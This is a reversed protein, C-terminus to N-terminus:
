TQTRHRVTGSDLVAPPPTQQQGNGAARRRPIGKVKRYRFPTMAAFFDTRPGDFVGFAFVAFLAATAFRLVLAVAAFPASRAGGAFAFFDAAGAFGFLVAACAFGAFAIAATSPAFAGAGAVAFSLRAAAAVSSCGGLGTSAVM